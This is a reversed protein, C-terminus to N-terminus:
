TIQQGPGKGLCEGASGRAGRCTPLVSSSCFHVGMGRIEVMGISHAVWLAPLGANQQARNESRVRLVVLEAAAGDVRHLKIVMLNRPRLAAERQAHKMAGPPM